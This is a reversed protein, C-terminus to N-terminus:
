RRLPIPYAYDVDAQLLEGNNEPTLGVPAFCTLSSTIRDAKLREGGPLSGPRDSPAQRFADVKWPGQQIEGKRGQVPM